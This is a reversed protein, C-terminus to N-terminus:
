DLPKHEIEFAAKLRKTNERDMDIEVESRVTKTFTSVMRYYDRTPIPDFKHDHCRACGVSMGLMSTGITQVIDDLEDYREKEAQNATIQTAHVGAALFGTAKMALANEPAFEDGAIQWKVFTNYPLDENFAQIVFDRYHYATKRDYDHEFGHSEAFRALDLWHRAWKEGFRPSAMLTDVLKEYADPANDNEFMDIQEPTPPLGILDFYVRRVLRRKDLQPNPAIKKEDLRALVFNDLPTKCCAENTVKPPTPNRLPQFSWFKKGEEINITKANLAPLAAASARPDPAGMKVWAELTAVEDSKLPADPPMETDKPKYRVALILRSKETNGPVIVAGNEGGRAVGERSDLYLKGKLKKAAVSHCSYCNDALVPRVKEEFFKLAAPDIEGGLIPAALFLLPIIIRLRM